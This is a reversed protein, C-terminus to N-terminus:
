SMPPHVPLCIRLSAPRYLQTSTFVKDVGSIRSLRSIEDRPLWVSLGDAVLRYHWRVRADPLAAEIRRTVVEQAGKLRALYRRAASSHMGGLGKVNALPPAPLTVVAESFDRPARSSSTSGLAFLLLLGLITFASARM